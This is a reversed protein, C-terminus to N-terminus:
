LWLQSNITCIPFLMQWVVTPRHFRGLRCICSCSMSWSMSHCFLIQFTQVFNSIIQVFRVNHRCVKLDKNWARYCSGQALNYHNSSKQLNNILAQTSHYQANLHTLKLTFVLHSGNRITGCTWTICHTHVYMYKYLITYVHIYWTALIQM